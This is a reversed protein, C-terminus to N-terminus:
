MDFCCFCGDFPKNWDFDTRNGVFSGRWSLFFLSKDAFRPYTEDNLAIGPDFIWDTSM